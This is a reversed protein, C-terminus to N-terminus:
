IIKPSQIASIGLLLNNMTVDANFAVKPTM